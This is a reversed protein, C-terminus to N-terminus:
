HRLRKRTKKTATNTATKRGYFDAFGKQYRSIDSKAIHLYINRVTRTDSWGGIEMTIHEPIELHYALSAFSHRLGHIGVYKIGSRECLKKLGDRVSDQKMNAVPGSPKRERELVMKLEPILVPVNRTSSVNKNTSKTTWGHKENRVVAGKVRIFDPNEPIDEWRLAYIESIRMSSLALLAVLAYQTPAVADVFPLIEDYSLFEHEKPKPMPQKCEPLKRGCVKKAVTCLFSYANKLTKPSCIRSERDVISQWDSDKISSLPKNMIKQFRHEQIAKYGRITSPSLLNERDDIFKEIADHMTIEEPEDLRDAHCRMEVLWKVAEEKTQFEKAKRKGEVMIRAQWKGNPKQVPEPINM